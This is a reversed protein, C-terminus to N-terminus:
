QDELHHFIKKCILLERNRKQAQGDNTDDKSQNVM